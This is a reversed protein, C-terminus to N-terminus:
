SFLAVSFDSYETATRAVSPNCHHDGQPSLLSGAPFSGLEVLRSLDANTAAILRVDIDSERDSGLPKIKRHATARLLAQQVRPSATQIEDLFLIGGDAEVFAGKRGTKAETFAGKVHGFLTDLLLNEDLEGCNIAVFPKGALRSHRHIAEAALQKGTGTEGIILVDADAGAAKMIEQKLKELKPGLGMIEPLADQDRGIAPQPLDAEAVPTRDRLAAAERERAAIQRGANHQQIDALM